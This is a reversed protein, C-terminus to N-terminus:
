ERESEKAKVKLFRYVACCIESDDDDPASLLQFGYDRDEHCSICCVPTLYGPKTGVYDSCFKM